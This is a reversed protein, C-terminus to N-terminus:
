GECGYSSLSRSFQRCLNIEGSQCSTTRPWSRYARATDHRVPVREAEYRTVLAKVTCGDTSSTKRPLIELRRVQRWASTKTPFEQRTGITRSRRRGNIWQLFRWTRSHHFPARSCSLVPHFESSEFSSVHPQPASLLMAATGEFSALVLIILTRCLVPLTRNSLPRPGVCEVHCGLRLDQIELPGSFSRCRVRVAPVNAGISVASATGRRCQSPRQLDWLSRCVATNTHEHVASM